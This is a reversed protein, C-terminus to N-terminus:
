GQSHCQGQVCCDLMKVPHDNQKHHDVSLNLKTAFFSVPKSSIFSITSVTM